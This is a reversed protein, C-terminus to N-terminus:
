SYEVLWISSSAVEVSFCSCWIYVSEVCGRCMEYGELKARVFCPSSSGARWRVRKEANVRRMKGAQCGRALCVQWVMVRRITRRGEEKVEIAMSVRLFTRVPMWSPTSVKM